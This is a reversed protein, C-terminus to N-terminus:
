YPLLFKGGVSQRLPRYYGLQLKILFPFLTIKHNFITVIFILEGVRHEMNNTDSNGATNETQRNKNISNSHASNLRVYYIVNSSLSFSQM